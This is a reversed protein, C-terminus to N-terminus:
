PTTSWGPEAPIARTDNREQWGHVGAPFWYVRNYGAQVLRKAANWSGWCRPKCFVVVPADKRGASLESVRRLLAESHEIPLDFRGAGPLWVAGPISHHVPKWVSGAPLTEPKRDAPGVDLLLPQSALLSELAPVDIVQAGQLTAPTDSVM